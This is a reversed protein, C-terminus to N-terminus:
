YAVSVSLLLFLCGPLPIAAPLAPEGMRHCCLAGAMNRRPQTSAHCLEPCRLPHAVSGRSPGEASVSLRVSPPASPVRGPFFSGGEACEWVKFLGRKLADRVAVGTSGRQEASGLSGSEAAPKTM